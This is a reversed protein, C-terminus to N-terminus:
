SWDADTRNGRYSDFNGPDNAIDEECFSCHEKGKTDVSAWDHEGYHLGIFDVTCPNDCHCM